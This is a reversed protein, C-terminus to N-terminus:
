KRAISAIKYKSKKAENINVNLKVCQQSSISLNKELESLQSRSDTPDEIEMEDLKTGDEIIKTTADNINKTLPNWKAELSKKGKSEDSKTEQPKM